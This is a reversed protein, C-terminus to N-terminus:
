DDKQRLLSFIELKVIKDIHYGFFLKGDTM